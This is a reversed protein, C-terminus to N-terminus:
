LYIGNTLTKKFLELDDYVEKEIDEIKMSHFHSTKLKKKVGDSFWGYVRMVEERSLSYLSWNVNNFLIPLTSMNLEEQLKLVKAYISSTFDEELKLLFMAKVIDEKCYNFVAKVIEGIRDFLDETQYTEPNGQIKIIDGYVDKVLYIYLEEKSKTYNYFSGKAISLKGIISNISAKDYGKSGFEDMVVNLIEKQRSKKLNYFTQKM